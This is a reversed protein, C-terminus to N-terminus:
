MAELNDNRESTSTLGGFREMMYEDLREVARARGTVVQLNHDLDPLFEVHYNMPTAVRRRDISRLLPVRPFPSLDEKSALVLLEIGSRAVESLLNISYKKPVVVRLFHWSAAMLWRQHLLVWKLGDGVSRVLRQRSSTLRVILRLSDIGVPPNIACVGRAGLALAGELAVYVGSCLSVFVVNSPDDPSLTRAICEADSSWGPEFIMNRGEGSWPSAGTGQPDFRVCRLGFNAWRRALDVWLRMPGTHDENSVNVLIVLPGKPNIVPETLITFLPHPGVDLYRERVAFAGDGRPIEISTTQDVPEYIAMLSAPESLWQVIQDITLRPMEAFLPNVDLLERQEVTRRWEVNEDDLRSRLGDLMNRDNRTVVLVREAIKGKSKTLNMRSLEASRTPTLVFEAITLAEDTRGSLRKRQLMGLAKAERLYTRGSDCPDWLVLSSLGLSQGSATVGLVTAGLRLGVASIDSLGLSRLLEVASLVNGQWTVDLEMDNMDGVSDGTGYYDFRLAVFGHEALATALRRLAFRSAHVERGIPPAIIVGGRALPVKPRTLCGFLPQGNSPFWLPEEVVLPSTLPTM